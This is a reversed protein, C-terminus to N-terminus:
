TTPQVRPSEEREEEGGDADDEGQLHLDDDDEGQLHQDDDDDYM